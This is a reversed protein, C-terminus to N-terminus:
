RSFRCAAIVIMCRMAVQMFVTKIGSAAECMVTRRSISFVVAAAIYLSSSLTLVIRCRVMSTVMEQTLLSRAPWFFFSKRGLSSPLIGPPPAPLLPTLPPAPEAEQNSDRWVGVQREIWVKRELTWM